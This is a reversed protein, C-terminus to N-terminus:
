GALALLSYRLCQEIGRVSLQAGPRPSLTLIVEGDEARGEMTGINMCEGSPCAWAGQRCGRIRELLAQERGAVGDIRVSLGAAVNEIRIEM